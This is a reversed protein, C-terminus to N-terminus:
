DHAEDMGKIGKLAAIIEAIDGQAHILEDYVAVFKNLDDALGLKNDANKAQIANIISDAGDKVKALHNQIEEAKAIQLDTLEAQNSLIVDKNSM